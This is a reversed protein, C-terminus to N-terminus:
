RGAVSGSNKGEGVAQLLRRRLLINSGGLLGKDTNKVWEENKDLEKTTNGNKAVALLARAAAVNADDPAFEPKSLVAEAEDFQNEKIHELAM